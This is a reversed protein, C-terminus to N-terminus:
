RIGAISCCLHLATRAPDRPESVEGERRRAGIWSQCKRSADLPSPRRTDIRGAPRQRRWLAGLRSVLTPRRSRLLSPAERLRRRVSVGFCKRAAVDEVGQGSTFGAIRLSWSKAPSPLFVAWWRHPGNG